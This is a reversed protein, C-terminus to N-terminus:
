KVIFRCEGMRYERGGYSAMHITHPSVGISSDKANKFHGLASLIDSTIEVSEPKKFLNNIITKSQFGINGGLRIIDPYEPKRQNFISIYNTYYDSAFQEVAEKIQEITIKCFTSDITISFRITVNPIICENFIPLKAYTGNTKLDSKQCLTLKDCSIPESDSIIIGQMVDNVANSKDKETKIKRGATYFATQELAKSEASLIKEKKKKKETIMRNDAIRKAIRTYADPRKKIDYALLATRLCGKLSSGPIYPMNYADKVFTKIGRNKVSIETNSCDLRYDVLSEIEDMTADSRRLWSGLDDSAESCMFSEFSKFLEKDFVFKALRESNIIYATKSNSDFIYEKKNIEKGSAIHLPSLTHLEIEYKKQFSNM